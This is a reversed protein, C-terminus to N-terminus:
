PAAAEHEDGERVRRLAQQLMGEQAESLEHGSEERFFSRFLEEDSSQEFAADAGEETESTQEALAFRISCTHPYVAALRAAADPEYVADTLRIFVYDDQSSTKAEKIIAELEGEIRRVSHLPKLPIRSYQCGSSSCDVLVVSKEQDAESASYALPSGSYVAHLGACQPRHLHGLATYDFDRFLEAPLVEVMGVSPIESESQLGEEGRGAAWQHALLIVADAPELGRRQEQLFREMLSAFDTRSDAEYLERLRGARVYPLLCICVKEGSKELVVSELRGNFEGAVHCSAKAMLESGFSLRIQSDHNGAVMFVPIGQAALRSLFGDLLKVSDLPPISRDFIDGALLLGDVKERCAIDFIQNLIHAQDAQLSFRNLSKGLHLDATHLFRM